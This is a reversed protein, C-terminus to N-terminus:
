AARTASPAPTEARSFLAKLRRAVGFDFARAVALAREKHAARIHAEIAEPSLDVRKEENNM